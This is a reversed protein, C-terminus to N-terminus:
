DQDEMEGRVATMGYREAQPVALLIQRQEVRIEIRDADPFGQVQMPAVYCQGADDNVYVHRRANGYEALARWASKFAAKGATNATELNSYLDLIETQCRSDGPIYERRLVLFPM